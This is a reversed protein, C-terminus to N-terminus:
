CFYAEVAPPVTPESGVAVMVKSGERRCWCVREYKFRIPAFLILLPPPYIVPMMNGITSSLFM